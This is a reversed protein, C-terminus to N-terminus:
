TELPLNSIADMVSQGSPVHGGRLKARLALAFAVVLRVVVGRPGARRPPVVRALQALHRARVHRRRNGLRAAVLAHGRLAIVAQAIALAIMYCASGLALMAM